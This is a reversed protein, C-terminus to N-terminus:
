SWHLELVKGGVIDGIGKKVSEESFNWGAYKEPKLNGGAEGKQDM